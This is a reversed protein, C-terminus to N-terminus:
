KEWSGVMELYLSYLRKLVSSRIIESESCWLLYLVINIVSHRGGLGYKGAVPNSGSSQIRACLFTFQGLCRKQHHCKLSLIGRGDRKRGQHGESPLMMLHLPDLDGVWQISSLGGWLLSGMLLFYVRKYQWHSKLIQRNCSKPNSVRINASVQMGNGSFFKNSLFKLNEM